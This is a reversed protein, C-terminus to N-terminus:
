DGGSDGRRRRNGIWRSPFWRMRFGGLHYGREKSLRDIEAEVAKRQDSSLEGELVGKLYAIREAIWRDGDIVRNRM